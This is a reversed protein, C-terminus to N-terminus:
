RTPSGSSRGSWPRARPVRQRNGCSAPSSRTPTAWRSKAIVAERDASRLRELAAEYREVAQQGIARDLPSAAEDPLRTDLAEVAGRASARRIEDRLRNVVGQRLYAQLAGEGRIEFQEIRQFTRVVTEQVLDQTDAMGRAWQPLRGRAWRQLRPLYRAILANLADRDGARARELLTMSSAVDLVREDLRLSQAATSPSM